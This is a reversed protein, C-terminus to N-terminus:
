LDILYAADDDDSVPPLPLPEPRPPLTWPKGYADALRDHLEAIIRDKERERRNAEHLQERLVAVTSKFM